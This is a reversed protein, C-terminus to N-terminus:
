EVSGTSSSASKFQLKSDFVETNGVASLLLVGEQEGSGLAAKVFDGRFCGVVLSRRLKLGVVRSVKLGNCGRSLLM